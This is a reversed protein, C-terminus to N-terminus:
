RIGGKKKGLNFPLRYVVPEKTVKKLSVQIKFEQNINVTKNSIKIDSVIISMFDCRIQLLLPYKSCNELM